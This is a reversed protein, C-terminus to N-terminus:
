KPYVQAGPGVYQMFLDLAEGDRAHRGLKKKSFLVEGNVILEFVGKSGTIFTFTEILHQYDGLIEDAM